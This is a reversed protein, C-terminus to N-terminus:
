DEESDSYMDRWLAENMLFFILDCTYARASCATSRSGSPVVTCVSFSYGMRPKLDQLDVFNCKARTMLERPKEGGCAYTISFTYAVGEMNTPTDWRLRVSKGRVKKVRLRRPSTPKTCVTTHVPESELGTSQLVTCVSISYETGPTLHSLFLSNEDTTVSERQGTSEGWTVRFTHPVGEMDTPRDWSLSLSTECVSINLKGPPSPETLAQILCVRSRIYNHLVTCISFSYEMGPKLDCLDATNSNSGATLERPEEGDCTYIIMFNYSVGEMNTPTDWCLRVSRSRVEEARLREPATPKTCVTTHVPESMLGTSQQVTCVSIIYETVTTLHPLITHNEDTTISWTQGRSDGWTVRFTYQVGEMDTPRDWFLCVSTESAYSINIKGPPSPETWVTKHVPESEVDYSQLVTCVSISYETGPRLHSLVTSNGETSISGRQETLALWTVRFTCPVGEMDTTRDWSLCLSTDSVNCINLREPPSPKTCVTTHVPESEVSYSQLVTCVSIRYETGPRLHSLVTFNEDTTISERQGRSNVWTVRFTHPVGEMDTPRDWSLCVSTKRVSSINLNGPPLPKTCVTTHVPESELGTSQLVTCVSISYETGPTLHSLFLPNEDTTISERQGTSEGWTVRFTHPVGEMDTPRDWSLCVSTDRVSIINM